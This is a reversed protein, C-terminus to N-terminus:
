EERQTGARSDALALTTSLVWVLLLVSGIFEPVALGPGIRLGFYWLVWSLAHGLGLWHYGLGLRPAGALVVGSGHIALTLTGLVFYSVSIPLHLATGSPFVGLLALATTTFGFSVAGVRELGNRARKWVVVAFPMSLLASAVLGTNFLWPNAAGPRGLDSIAHSSWVFTPSLIMAVLVTTFGVLAGAVGSWHLSTRAYGSLGSDDQSDSRTAPVRGVTALWCDLREAAQRVLSRM